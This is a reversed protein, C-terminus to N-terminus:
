NLLKYLILTFLIIVFVTYYLKYLHTPKTIGYLEKIASISDETIVNGPIYREYMIDNPNEKTHAILQAHGIEHELSSSLDIPEMGVQIAKAIDWEIVDNLYIFGTNPIWFAIMNPDLMIIDYPKYPMVGTEGGAFWIQIYALHKSLTEVFEKNYEKLHVNWKNFAQRIAENQIIPTLKNTLNNVFYYVKGESDFPLKKGELLSYMEVETHLCLQKM